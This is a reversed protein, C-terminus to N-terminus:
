SKVLILCHQPYVDEPIGVPDDGRPDHVLKQDFYVTDHNTGRRTKGGRIYHFPMCGPKFAHEPGQIEFVLTSYGLPKLFATLRNWWPLNGDPGPPEEGFECFHPVAEAPLELISAVCARTCDGWSGNAPDHKSIM